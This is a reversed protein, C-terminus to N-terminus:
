PTPADMKVKKPPTSTPHTAISSPDYTGATVPNPQARSPTNGRPDSVPKGEDINTPLAVQQQNGTQSAAGKHLNPLFLVVCFVASMVVATVMIAIIVKRDMNRKM